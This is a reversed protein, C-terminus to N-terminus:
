LEGGKRALQISLEIIKDLFDDVEKPYQKEDFKHIGFIGFINHSTDDTEQTINISIGICKM